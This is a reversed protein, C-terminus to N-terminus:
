CASYKQKFTIKFNFNSFWSLENKKFYWTALNIMHKESFINLILKEKWPSSFIISDYPLKINMDCAFKNKNCLRSSIDLKLNWVDLLIIINSIRQIFNAIM